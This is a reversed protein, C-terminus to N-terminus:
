QAVSTPVVPSTMSEAAAKVVDTIKEIFTQEAIQEVSVCHVPGPLAGM